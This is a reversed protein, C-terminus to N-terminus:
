ENIGWPTNNGKLISQLGQRYTPFQLESILSEKMRTNSIRKTEISRRRGRGRIDVTQLPIENDTREPPERGISRLLIAAEQMVIFRNEPEDDALNYVGVSKSMMAAMIARAVDYEHIRNTIESATTSTTTIPSTLKGEM